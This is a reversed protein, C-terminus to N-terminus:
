DGGVGGKRMAGFKWKEGKESANGDEGGKEGGGGRMWKSGWLSFNMM